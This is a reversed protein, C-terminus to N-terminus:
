QSSAEQQQGIWLCAALFWLGSALPWFGLIPGHETFQKFPAIRPSNVRLTAILLFYQIKENQAM